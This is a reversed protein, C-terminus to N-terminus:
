KQSAKLSVGAGSAVEGHKLFQVGADELARKIAALNNIAPTRRGKEFDRITSESLNSATALQTQSWNLLGRAARSQASSLEM